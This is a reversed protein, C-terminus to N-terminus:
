RLHEQRRLDALEKLAMAVLVLGSLGLLIVLVYLGLGPVGAGGGVSETARGLKLIAGSGTLSALAALFLWLPHRASSSSLPM